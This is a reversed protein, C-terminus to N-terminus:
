WPTNETKIYQDYLDELKQKESGSLGTDSAKANGEIQSVNRAGPIVSTVADYSLVFALAKKSINDEKVIDKVQEVIKSRVKITAEDWRARVGTFQSNVNYKGTLWGSDLPVKILLAIGREKIEDFREKPEQHIINFMIEITDVNLHELVLNLEELSDISVGYGRILGQDKLDQLEDLLDSEGQLVYREPNHLIVSDLYTTQLNRLSREVSTKIGEKSFEWEGNPGHGVKTNIFVQERVEKLAHGLIIESQGNGYGPATDFVTIGNKLAEQVLSVGEEISMRGWTGNGGLQWAGLGVESLDKKYRRVKRVKMNDGLLIIDYIIYSIKKVSQTSL